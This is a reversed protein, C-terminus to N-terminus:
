NSTIANTVGIGVSTAFFLNTGNTMLWATKGANMYIKEHVILNTRIVASGNVEFRENLSDSGTGIGIRKTATSGKITGGIDLHNSADSTPVDAGAGIVINSSGNVLTGGIEAGLATNRSGNTMNMFTDEGIFSNWHGGINSYGSDQGIATNGYGTTLQYLSGAGVATNHYGSSQATLASYGIAVCSGIGTTNSMMARGGIAVNKNQNTSNQLALGGIAVNDDGSILKELTGNGVAVNRAGSRSAALAYTGFAVNNIVSTGSRMSGHGIAINDSGSVLNSLASYGIGYNKWGTAGTTHVVKRGAHRGLFMNPFGEDPLIDSSFTGTLSVNEAAVTGATWTGRLVNAKGDALVGGRGLSLNGNDSYIVANTPGYSADLFDNTYSDFFMQGVGRAWKGVNNGIVVSNTLLSYYGVFNGLVVNVNGTGGYMAYSGFITNTGGRVNQGAGTGIATNNNGASGKAAGTGFASNFSGTAGNLAQRGVAVNYNGTSNAFAEIGAAFNFGGFSNTAVGPGYFSGGIKANSEVTMDGYTTIRKAYLDGGVSFCSNGDDRRAKIVFPQGWARKGDSNRSVEVRVYIEGGSPSYNAATANANSTLAMGGRGYFVISAANSTEVYITGGTVSHRIDPGQTAYFSGRRIAAKVANTTLADAYVVIWGKGVDALSHADDVALGWVAINKSLMSDWRNLYYDEPPVRGNYVDMGVFGTVRDLINTPWPAATLSPHAVIPIADQTLVANITDQANTPVVGSTAGFSLLHVPNQDVDTRYATEEVGPIFLIGSVGPNATPQGDHDTIAVFDFGANKYATVMTEASEAGDSATTHVHPQGKFTTGGYIYPNLFIAKHADLANTAAAGVRVIAAANSTAMNSVAAFWDGRAAVVDTTGYAVTTEFENTSIYEVIWEKSAFNLNGWPMPIGNSYSGGTAPDYEEILRGRAFTRVKGASNTGVISFYYSGNESFFVNTASDFVVINNSAGATGVVPVMGNTDYQGYGYLFRTNWNTMSLPVGGDFFSVQLGVTNGTFVRDIVKQGGSDQADVEIRYLQAFLLSPLLGLVVM